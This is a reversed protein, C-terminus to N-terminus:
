PSAAAIAIRLNNQTGEPVNINMRLSIRRPYHMVLYNSALDVHSAMTPKLCM